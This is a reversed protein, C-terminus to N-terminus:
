RDGGRVLLRAPGELDQWVLQAERLREGEDEISALLPLFTRMLRRRANRVKVEELADRTPKQREQKRLWSPPRQPLEHGFEMLVMAAVVHAERESYGWALRALEVVDGGRLCGYCFFSQTEPYVVFSPSRDEHDPLPCRRRLGGAESGTLRDALEIISVAEKAATIPKAYSVGPYRANNASREPPNHHLIV